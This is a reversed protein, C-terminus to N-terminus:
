FFVCKLLLLVFCNPLYLCHLEILVHLLFIAVVLAVKYDRYKGLMWFGIAILVFFVIGIAVFFYTYLCDITYNGFNFKDKGLVWYKSLSM